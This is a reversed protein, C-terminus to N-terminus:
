GLALALLLSRLPSPVPGENSWSVAFLLPLGLSKRGGLM